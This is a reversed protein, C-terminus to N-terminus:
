SEDPKNWERRNIVYGSIKGKFPLLLMGPLRVVQKSDRYKHIGITM